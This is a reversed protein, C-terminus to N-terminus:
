CPGAEDIHATLLALAGAETDAMLQAGCECTAVTVVEAVGHTTPWCTPCDTAGSAMGAVLYRPGITADGAYHGCDAQMHKGEGVAARHVTRTAHDFIAVEHRTM